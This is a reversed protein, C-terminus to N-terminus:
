VAGPAVMYGDLLAGLALYEAQAGPDAGLADAHASVVRYERESTIRGRARVRAVVAADRAALRDSGFRAELARDLARADALPLAARTGGLERYLARLGRVSRSAAVREVTAALDDLVRAAPEARRFADLTLRCRAHLEALEAEQEPTLTRPRPM